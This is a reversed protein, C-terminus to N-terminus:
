ASPTSTVTGAGSDAVATTITVKKLNTSIPKNMYKQVIADGKEKMAENLKEIFLTGFMILYNAPVTYGISSVSYAETLDAGTLYEPLDNVGADFANISISDKVLELLIDGYTTVEEGEKIDMPTFKKNSADYKAGNKILKDLYYVETVNPTVSTYTYSIQPLEAASQPMAYEYKANRSFYNGTHQTPSTSIVGNADEAYYYYENGVNFSSSDTVFYSNGIKEYLIATKTVSEVSGDKKTVNVTYKHYPECEFYCCWCGGGDATIETKKSTINYIHGDSVYSYYAMRPKTSFSIKGM